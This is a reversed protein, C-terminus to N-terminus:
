ACWGCSPRSAPAPSVTTSCCSAGGRTAPATSRPAASRGRTASRERARSAAWTRRSDADAPKACSSPPKPGSSGARAAASSYPPSGPRRGRCEGPVNRATRCFSRSGKLHCLWMHWERFRELTADADGVVDPVAIWLLNPHTRPLHSRQCGARAPGPLRWPWAAARIRAAVSPWPAIAELMACVAAPNLGQFCDNDAAVAYGAALTDALRRFHRPTILRGLNPHHHQQLQPLAATTLLLM